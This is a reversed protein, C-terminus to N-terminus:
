GHRPDNRTRRQKPRRHRPVAITATIVTQKTRPHRHPIMSCYHSVDSRRHTYTHTLTDGYRGSWHPHALRDNTRAGVHVIGSSLADNVAADCGVHNGRLDHTREGRTSGQTQTCPWVQQRTPGASTDTSTIDGAMVARPTHRHTQTGQRSTTQKCRNNAKRQM